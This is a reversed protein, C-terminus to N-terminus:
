GVVPTQGVGLGAIFRGAYIADLNGNVGGIMFIIIGVVWLVCLFRTAMIRGIRDCVLFASHNTLIDALACRWITWARKLFFATAHYLGSLERACMVGRSCRGACVM